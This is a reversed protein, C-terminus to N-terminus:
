CPYGERPDREPETLFLAARPATNSWGTTPSARVPVVTVMLPLNSSPRALCLRLRTKLPRVDSASSSRSALELAAAIAQQLKRTDTPTAAAVGLKCLILADRKAAIAEARANVFVRRKTVDLVIVGTALRDLISFANACDLREASLRHRLRLVNNFHPALAQMAAVDDSDFDGAGLERGVALHARQTPPCSLPALIAYFGRM